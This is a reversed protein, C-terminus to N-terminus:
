PRLPDSPQRQRGGPPRVPGPDHLQDLAGPAERLRRGRHVRLHEPQLLELRDLRAPRADDGSEQNYTEECVMEWACRDMHTYNLLQHGGKYDLLGSVRVTNFLTLVTASRPRASRSPRATTSSTTRRPRGRASSSATATPTTGPSRRSWYGGLPYGEVHRQTSGLGFIIPEVGEGLVDLRNRTQGYTATAELGFRETRLIRANLLAEFGVNSVSGINEFRTTTAGISPALRRRIMADRSEKNFYTFDFGIRDDLFGADFGVEVETSIEPRLEPNGAGALTIGPQETGSLRVPAPNYFTAADRFSPRLGSRGFSSRLRLSSLAPDAPLVAGGLDGV